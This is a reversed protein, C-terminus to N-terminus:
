TFRNQSPTKWPKLKTNKNKNDMQERARQRGDGINTKLRL